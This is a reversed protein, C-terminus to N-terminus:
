IPIKLPVGYRGRAQAYDHNLREIQEPKLSGPAALYAIVRGTLATASRTSIMKGNSRVIIDTWTDSAASWDIRNARTIAETLHYGSHALLGLARFMAVQAAPRFLLSWRERYQRLDRISGPWAIATRYAEFGNLVAAWWHATWTYAQELEHNDPRNVRHKEDLHRLGHVDCIVEIIQYLAQLTTLKATFQDLNTKRWEVLPEGNADFLCLPPAPSSLALPPDKEVLWRAVIAYGDDESTIINDAPTTPRAHRNVKNFIRRTKELSEYEVIVVCVEDAAVAASAEPESEASGSIIERLAVLRHQGDLAIYTGGEITLFGMRGAADRYPAPIPASTLTLPEFQFRDPRYALVILSGFFRDTSRLLYPVLEDRIRQLALDRQFREGITWQKWEALESAPRAMGALEKATMTVQFFVTSGMQGRIGPFVYSPM